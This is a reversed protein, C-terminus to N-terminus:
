LPRSDIAFRTNDIKLFKHAWHLKRYRLRRNFRRSGPIKHISNDDRFLVVRLLEM